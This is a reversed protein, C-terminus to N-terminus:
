AKRRRRALGGMFLLGGGMLVFSVPEPTATLTTDVTNSYSDYTSTSGVRTGDIVCSTNTPCSGVMNPADLDSLLTSGYLVEGAGTAFTITAPVGSTQTTTNSVAIEFLTTPSSINTFGVETGTVDGTLILYGGSLTMSENTISYVGNLNSNADGAVQLQTFDVGASQLISGGAVTTTFTGGAGGSGSGTFDFTTACFGPVATACLIAASVLTIKKIM